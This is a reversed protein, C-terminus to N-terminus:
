NPTRDDKNFWPVIECLQEVFCKNEIAILFFYPILFCFGSTKILHYNVVLEESECGCHFLANHIIVRLDM